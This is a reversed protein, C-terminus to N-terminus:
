FYIGIYFASVLIIVQWMFNIFYDFRVRPLTGRVWLIILLNLFTLFLLLYSNLFILSVIWGMVFIILYECAFLCTFYTNSYEVNFGSVLDSESEAYDFPTRNAECLICILWITYFFLLGWLIGSYGGYVNLNYNNWYLSYIIVLCMLSAEFTISGFSARLSGYLGYKNFSGWGLLLFSYSGISSVALFWLLAYNFCDGTSSYYYFLMFLFSINVLISVGLLGLNSRGLFQFIKIKVILKILDAFSQFLGALGVKNPGKRIQVYGLLKRESLIFFAVFVMVFIFSLYFGVFQELFWIFYNLM